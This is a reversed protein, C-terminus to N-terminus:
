NKSFWEELFNDIMELTTGTTKTNLDIEELILKPPPKRERRWM